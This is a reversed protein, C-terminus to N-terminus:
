GRRDWTQLINTRTIEPKMDQNLLPLDRVTLINRYGRLLIQNIWTFFIMGIFGSTEEPSAIHPFTTSPRKNCETVLLLFSVSCRVITLYSVDGHQQPITLIM